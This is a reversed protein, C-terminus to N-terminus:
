LRGFRPRFYAIVNSKKRVAIQVHTKDLFRAGDYLEGGEPFLARVSHFAEENMVDERIRHLFNIVACDLKHHGNDSNEPKEWGESEYQKLFSDHAMRVLDVAASEMLDLCYGPDIIAGVVFPNTIEAKCVKPNDRANEAWRLARQPDGEWFYIGAGLWDYDNTSPELIREGRLVAEGLIADCGHYGLVWGTSKM